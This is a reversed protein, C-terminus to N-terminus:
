HTDKLVADLSAAPLLVVANTLSVQFSALHKKTM